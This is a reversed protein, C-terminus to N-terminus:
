GVPDGKVARTQKAESATVDRVPDFRPVGLRNDIIDAYYAILLAVHEDFAELLRANLTIKYKPKNDVCLLGARAADNLIKRMHSRSLGLRLSLNFLSVDIQPCFAHPEDFFNAERLLELLFQYGGDRDAFMLIDQHWELLLIGNFYDDAAIRMVQLDVAPDSGLRVYGGRPMIQDLAAYIAGMLEARYGRLKQTPRLFRYRKDAASCSELYGSLELMKVFAFVRGRSAVRREACINQMKRITLGSRVDDIDLYSDLYICINAILSRATENVLFRAVNSGSHMKYIIESYITRSRYFNPHLM